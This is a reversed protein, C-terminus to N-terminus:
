VPRAQAARAAIPGLLQNGVVDDRIWAKVCPTTPSMLASQQAASSAIAAREVPPLRGGFTM